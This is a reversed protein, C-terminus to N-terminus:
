FRADSESIRPFGSLTTPLSARLGPNPSQDDQAKTDQGRDNSAYQAYSNAPPFPGDDCHSPYRQAPVHHRVKTFSGPWDFQDVTRREVSHSGGLVAIGVHAPGWAGRVQGPQQRRRGNALLDGGHPLIHGRFITPLNPPTRSAGVHVCGPAWVFTSLSASQSKYSIAESM